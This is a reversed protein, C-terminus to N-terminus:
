FRMMGTTTLTTKDFVRSTTALHILTYQEQYPQDSSIADIPVIVKYGRLAAGSGTHLVSTHAATGAAIITKIGKIKLIKELDNGMFKDPGFSPLVPDGPAPAIEKLIDAATTTGSLTYLVLMGKAHAENVLKRLNAVSAACRPRRQATCTQSNVDMILLATTLPDDITAPKLAPPPPAKITNWEDIVTQAHADHPLFAAMFALWAIAFASRSGSFRLKAYM